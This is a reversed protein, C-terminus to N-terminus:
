SKGEHCHCHPKEVQMVGADIWRTALTAVGLAVLVIATVIPMRRKLWGGLVLVGTMAPVTGLWFMTMVGAGLL